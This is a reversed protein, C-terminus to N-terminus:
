TYFDSFVKLIAPLLLNSLFQLTFYYKQCGLGFSNTLNRYSYLMVSTIGFTMPKAGRFSIKVGRFEIPENQGHNPPNQIAIPCKKNRLGPLGSRTYLEICLDSQIFDDALIM